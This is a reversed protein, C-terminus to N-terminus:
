EHLNKHLPLSKFDSKFIKGSHVYWVYAEIRNIGMSKRLSFAYDKVQRLYRRLGRDNEEDKPTEGFKYDVIVARKGDPSVMIRDPRRNRHGNFLINRENMVRWNGSFWDKVTEANIAEALMPEWEDAQRSTIIGRMKLSLAARHLDDAVRVNEMITHLLNGDSRPDTDAAEPSVTASDELETQLIDATASVEAPVSESDLCHLISPCSNVGYEEIVRTEQLSIDTNEDKPLVKEEEPNPDIKEGFSIVKGAEDCHMTEAPIIDSTNEPLHGEMNSCIEKLFWASSTHSSRKNDKDIYKTFIYLECKARTFAVYLSNLKDMMYMDSYKRYLDAYETDLLLKTTEVPIYEPLDYDALLPSPKVWRWETKLNSPTLGKAEFPLIVCKFELGKSKHITMISVADTGEPSSISLSVGRSKWWELFSVIDSPYRECYELVLDQFGAIFVAQTRRLDEPVFNEVISEVLSPLAVTQMGNLMEKIADIPKGAKIFESLQDSPSLEPHQLAYFSFDCKIDKWKIKNDKQTSIDNPEGKDEYNSKGEAIKQLTSVIVGVADSSSITLSDESIFEIKPADGHLTSNYEIIAEITSNGLDKTDVLVAIDKQRYGRDILSSILPGLDKLAEKQEVNQEKEKRSSDDPDKEHPQAPKDFFRIEVYGAEEQKKPFQVVNGYLNGFDIKEKIAEDNANAYIEDQLATIEKTLAHFFYNNFEVIRRFSRWNTNDEKSMGCVYVSEAFEDPVANTILSPDANRFRYISQKADGIILNDEGRSDSEKLLKRLNEWQLRSTDQFEDILYHDLNAGLREYIFPTDSDGIIRNLMSNTEGLQILNNADLFSSIKNRAELLLGLYPLTASYISWLRHKESSFIAKWEDYADYMDIAMATLTPEAPCAVRKLVSREVGRARKFYEKEPLVVDYKFNHIKALHSDFHRLCHEKADLGNAALMKEIDVARTVMKDYAVKLDESIDHRLKKYAEILRAAGAETDTYKDLFTRIEKFDENEMKQLSSRLSSYITDKKTNKQFVNWVSGKKDSADDMLLNIWFSSHSKGSPSNNVEDLTADIAAAAIYESDIEVQYSDNLNSEYAFTRLVTQFFSDITSVNFDSYQNLIASLAIKSVKGIEKHSVNLAKAFEDLYDTGSIVKPTIEANETEALAALKDIIRQKMEATAKNTFTIALIHAIGEAIEPESRLRIAGTSQDKITLLFWIFKKALTFTKGSGASARQLQLM